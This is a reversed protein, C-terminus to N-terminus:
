RGRRRLRSPGGAGPRRRIGGNLFPSIAVHSLEVRGGESGLGEGQVGALLRVRGRVRARHRDVGRGAVHEVVGRVGRAQEPELLEPVDVGPDHVRGRVHELLADGRELAAHRGEASADPWAASVSEIRLMARAPSLRTDAGAEVAAGVVQEGVGQGLDADRRREHVARARGREVRRDVLLGLRDEQLQDAVRAQVDVVQLGDGVDGVLVPTGTMTSLVKAGSSAWGILCPASM